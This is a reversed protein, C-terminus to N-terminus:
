ELILMADGYSYFRYGHAIAERYAELILDKGALACVLVLLSSRPLHFNTMLASVVQFRFGPYIFLNAEGAEPTVRGAHAQAVAELTRTTTTGVAVVRHGGHRAAEIAEATAPPIAFPEPDIIHSEVQDVRIPKFTGYGVHLTIAHHDIGRTQLQDLLAPTLHLGATPAAVSGRVRAYVTQYRDRDDASDPRKIYPPLPMHGIADIARDVDHGESASLRITRRGFTHQALIEAYLLPPEGFRVRTGPKLKQGPHVLADWQQGDLRRLLLCEVRGGSPDRYGLLRAPVVRSNNVVIVDGRDLLAPLDAVTRHDIRGERRHVVLLRSAGRELPPAQAILAEPLDFDFESLRVGPHYRLRGAPGRVPL